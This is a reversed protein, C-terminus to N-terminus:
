LEPTAHHSCRKAVVFYGGTEAPWNGDLRDIVPALTQGIRWLPWLLFRIIARLPFPGRILRLSMYNLKLCLMSFGGGQSSVEVDYFGAHSLLRRLAFPTFRFYDHPAEHLHWQWPVQLVLRGDPRLVRAFESLATQPTHLHELVSICFVSDFSRDPCPIQVNLDAIIDPRSDHQSSGWDAGTYSRGCSLIFERYAGTGCGADLVDGTILHAVRLLERDLLFYALWNYSRRNPHNRSPSQKM